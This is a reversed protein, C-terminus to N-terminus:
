YGSLLLFTFRHRNEFGSQWRWLRSVHCRPWLVAPLMLEFETQIGLIFNSPNWGKRKSVLDSKELLIWIPLQFASLVTYICPNEGSFIPYFDSKWNKGFDKPLATCLRNSVTANQKDIIKILNQNIKQFIRKRIKKLFGYVLMIYRLFIM